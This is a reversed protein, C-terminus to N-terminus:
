CLSGQDAISCATLRIISAEIGCLTCITGIVTTTIQEATHQLKYIAKASQISIPTLSAQAKSRNKTLFSFCYCNLSRDLSNCSFRHFPRFFHFLTNVKKLFYNLIYKTRLFPPIPLRARNLDTHYCYWSLELRKEQMSPLTNLSPSLM